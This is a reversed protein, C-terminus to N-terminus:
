RGSELRRHRHREHGGRARRWNRPRSGRRPSLTQTTAAESRVRRTVPIRNPSPPRRTVESTTASISACTLCNRAVPCTGGPSSSSRSLHKSFTAATLKAAAPDAVAGPDGSPVSPGIALKLPGTLRACSRLCAVATARRRNPGVNRRRSRRAARATARIPSAADSRACTVTSWRSLSAAREGRADRTRNAARGPPDVADAALVICGDISPGNNSQTRSRKLASTRCSTPSAGPRTSCASHPSPRITSASTALPRSARPASGREATRASPSVLTTAAPAKSYRPAVKLPDSSPSNNVPTTSQRRGPSPWANACSAARQRAGPPTTTSTLALGSATTAISGTAASRACPRGSWGTM